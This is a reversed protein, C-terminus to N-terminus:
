DTFIIDVIMIESKGTTRVPPGWLRIGSTVFFHTNEIKKYGWGLEYMNRIILNIPFLQGNHTHGSFQVDVTTKSVQLIESPRHDVMILPLSDSVQEVIEGISKRGRFHSDYRGGLYFSSDILVITDNLLTIGAKYFFGDKDHGGYFEHNGLVTFSGLDPNIDRLMIGITEMDENEMNGEVIDGGFLMLDPNINNIKNIFREVYRINAGERLHFDAAFAIRLKEIQSKKGPIRIEYRSTRITKFNIVGGAVVGISSIIIVALATKRFGATRLTEVSVIRVLKNILLLLDFLLVFMFIYLFFPLLYDAVLSLTQSLTGPGEFTNSLPYVSVIVLYVFTYQIKYGKSIFLNWIRLFVYINPIVYALTILTHFM